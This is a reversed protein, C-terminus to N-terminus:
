EYGHHNGLGAFSNEPDAEIWLSKLFSVLATVLLLAEEVPLDKIYGFNIEFPNKPNSTM